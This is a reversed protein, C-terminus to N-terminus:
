EKVYKYQLGLLWRNAIIIIKAMFYHWKLNLIISLLPYKDLTNYYFYKESKKLM